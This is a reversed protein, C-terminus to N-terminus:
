LIQLGYNLIKHNVMYSLAKQSLFTQWIQYIKGFQWVKSALCAKVLGTKGFLSKVNEGFKQGIFYNVKTHVSSGRKFSVRFLPCM